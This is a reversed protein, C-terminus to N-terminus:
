KRKQHLEEKFYIGCEKWFGARFPVLPQSLLEMGYWKKLICNELCIDLKELPEHFPHWKPCGPLCKSPTNIPRTEAPPFAHCVANGTPQAARVAWSSRPSREATPLVTHPQRGACQPPSLTPLLLSLLFFDPYLFICCHLGALLSSLLLSYFCFFFPNFLSFFLPYRKCLHFHTM